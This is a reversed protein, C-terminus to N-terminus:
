ECRMIEECEIYHEYEGTHLTTKIRDKLSGVIRIKSGKIFEKHFRDFFKPPAQVRIHCVEKKRTNTINEVMFSSIKHKDFKVDKIIKGELLVSNMHTRDTFYDNM